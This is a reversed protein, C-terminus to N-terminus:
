FSPSFSKLHAMATSAINIYPDLCRFYTEAILKAAEAILYENALDLITMSM